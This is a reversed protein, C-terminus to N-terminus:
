LAHMGPIVPLQNTRLEYIYHEYSSYQPIGHNWEPQDEDNEEHNFYVDEAKSATHKNLQHRIHSNCACNKGKVIPPVYEGNHCLHDACLRRPCGRLPKFDTLTFAACSQCINGRTRNM